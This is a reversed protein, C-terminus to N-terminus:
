STFDDGYGWEYAGDESRMHYTQGLGSALVVDDDALWMERLEPSTYAKKM